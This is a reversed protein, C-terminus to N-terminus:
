AANAFDGFYKEAGSKYAAHADEINKFCGLYIQKKDPNIKAIWRLKQKCWYVGKFGSTNAKSLSANYANEKNTAERLNCWWNHHKATDEHDIQKTPHKGTMYLWALRHARYRMGDIQILVYGSPKLSGAITGALIKGCYGPMDKLWTFIGTDPDYHLVEKLREITIPENDNM